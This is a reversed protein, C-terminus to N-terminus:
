KDLQKAINSPIKSRTIPFGHYTGASINIRIYQTEKGASSGIINKAKYFIYESGSKIGQELAIKELDPIIIDPKYKAPGSVTSKIIDLWNSNKPPYHKYGHPFNCLSTAYTKITFIDFFNNSAVVIGCQQFAKRLGQLYEKDSIKKVKLIFSNFDMDSMKKVIEAVERGAIGAGQGVKKLFFQYKGNLIKINRGIFKEFKIAVSALKGSAKLATLSNKAVVGAGVTLIKKIPILSKPLYGLGDFSSM